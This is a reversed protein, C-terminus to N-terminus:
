HVLMKRSTGDSYRVIVIGRQTQALRQGQLNYYGVITPTASNGTEENITVHGIGTVEGTRFTQIEGYFTEGESTTVFAVCCYDSNTDLDTFTATMVQGSAKVTIADEPVDVDMLRAGSSSIKWYKFGQLTVNDTGRMAYGKVSVTNGDVNVTAYTHVTPEFYSTNTPDFGVWEGFYEDGNESEYYPRYRWFANQYIGRIYGEIHGDYVVAQARNSAMDDTWDTRRWEFGVNTEAEDVNTEAAIIVNGASIVKPQLTELLLTETTVSTGWSEITDGNAVISYYVTYNSGPTLGTFTNPKGSQVPQETELEYYKIRMFQATVNADGHIYSSELTVSSATSAVQTAVPSIPATSFTVSGLQYWNESGKMAVYFPEDKYQAQPKLGTLKINNTNSVVEDHLKYIYNEDYNDIKLRATTQTVNEVSHVEPKVLLESTSVDYASFGSCWLAM